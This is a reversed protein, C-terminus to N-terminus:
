DRPSKAYCSTGLVTASPTTSERSDMSTSFARRQLSLTGGALEPVHLLTGLANGVRGDQAYERALARHQDTWQAEPLPAIRPTTLRVPQRSGPLDPRAQAIVSEVPSVLVTLLLCTLVCTLFRKM